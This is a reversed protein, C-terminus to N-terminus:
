VTDTAATWVVLEIPYVGTASFVHLPQAAGSSDNYGSSPDNFYWKIYPQYLEGTVPSAFVIQANVCTSSYSITDIAANLSPPGAFQARASAPLLAAPLLLILFLYIIRRIM